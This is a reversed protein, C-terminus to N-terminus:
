HRKAELRKAPPPEEEGPWFGTLHHFSKAAARDFTAASVAFITGRLAAASLVQRWTAKHTTATPAETGYRRSWVADFTKDAVKRAVFLGFFVSLPKFLLKELM